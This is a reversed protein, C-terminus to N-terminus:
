QMYRSTFIITYTSAIGLDIIFKRFLDHEINIQQSELDLDVMLYLIDVNGSAWDLSSTVIITKAVSQM